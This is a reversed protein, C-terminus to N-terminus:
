IELVRESTRTLSRPPGSRRTCQELVRLPGQLRQSVRDLVHCSGLLSLLQELDQGLEAGTQVVEDLAFTADRGDVQKQNTV